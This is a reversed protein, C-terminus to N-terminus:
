LFARAPSNFFKVPMSLGYSGGSFASIVTSVVAMDAVSAASRM